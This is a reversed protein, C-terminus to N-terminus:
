AIIHLKGLQERQICLTRWWASTADQLRSVVVEVCAHLPVRTSSLIQDAIQIWDVLEDTGYDGKFKPLEFKM